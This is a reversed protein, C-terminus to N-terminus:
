KHNILRCTLLLSGAGTGAGTGTLAQQELFTLHYEVMTTGSTNRLNRSTNFLTPLCGCRLWCHHQKHKYADQAAVTPAFRSTDLPVSTLGTLQRAYDQQLDQKYQQPLNSVQTIAMIYNRKELEQANAFM